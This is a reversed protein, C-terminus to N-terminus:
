RVTVCSPKRENERFEIQKWKYEQTDFVWLDNLYNAADCQNAKVIIVRSYRRVESVQIM